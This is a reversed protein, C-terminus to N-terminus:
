FPIDDTPGIPEGIVLQNVQPKTSVYADVSALVVFTIEPYLGALRKAEAQASELSGHQYRPVGQGIGLVMWFKATSPKIPEAEVDCQESRFLVDLSCDLFEAIAALRPGEPYVVGSEWQAIAGRTVDFHDAVEQQTYGAANRAKRLNESFVSM